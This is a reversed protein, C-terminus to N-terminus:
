CGEVDENSLVNDTMLSLQINMIKLEKVVKTLLDTNIDEVKLEGASNVAVSILEGMDNFSKLIATTVLPNATDGLSPGGKETAINVGKLQSEVVSGM